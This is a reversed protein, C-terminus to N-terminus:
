DAQSDPQNDGHAAEAIAKVGKGRAKITHLRANWRAAAATM